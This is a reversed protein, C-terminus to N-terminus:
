TDYFSKKRSTTTHRQFRAANRREQTVSSILDALDDPVVRDGCAILSGRRLDTWSHRDATTTGALGRPAEEPIVEWRNGSAADDAPRERSERLAPRAPASPRFGAARARARARAGVSPPAASISLSLALALALDAEEQEDVTAPLTQRPM